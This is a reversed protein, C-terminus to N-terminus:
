REVIGGNDYVRYKRTDSDVRVTFEYFISTKFTDLVAFIDVHRKLIALAEDESMHVKNGTCTNM